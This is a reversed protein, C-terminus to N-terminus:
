SSSRPRPCRSACPSLLGLPLQLARLLCILFRPAPTGTDPAGARERNDHPPILIISETLTSLSSNDSPKISRSTRPIPRHAAYAAGLPYRTQSGEPFLLSM